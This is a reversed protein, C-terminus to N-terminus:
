LRHLRRGGPHRHRGLVGSREREAFDFSAYTPGSVAVECGKEVASPSGVTYLEEAHIVTM